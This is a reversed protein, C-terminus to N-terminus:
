SRARSKRTAKKEAKPPAPDFGVFIQIDSLNDAPSRGIKLNDIVITFNAQTENPPIVISVQTLRSELVDKGRALAVRVPVQYSGPVGSPGLLIRGVAGVKYLGAFNDEPGLTRCERALKSLTAQWVLAEPAEGAGARFTRLTETGDRIEVDPCKVAVVGPETKPKTPDDPVVIPTGFVGQLLGPRANLPLSSPSPPAPQAASQAAQITAPDPSTQGPQSSTQTAPAASPGTNGSGFISCGGLCLGNLALLIIRTRKRLGGVM